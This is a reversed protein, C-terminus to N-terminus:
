SLFSYGDKNITDSFFNNENSNNGTVTPNTVISSKATNDANHQSQADADQWKNEHSDFKGGRNSNSKQMPLQEQQRHEREYSAVQRGITECNIALVFLNDIDPM